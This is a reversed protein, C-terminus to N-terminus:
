RRLHWRKMSEENFHRRQDRYRRFSSGPTRIWLPAGVVIRDVEEDLHWREKDLVVDSYVEALWEADEADAFTFGRRWPEDPREDHSANTGQHDAIKLAELSLYEPDDEPRREECRTSLWERVSWMSSSTWGSPQQDNVGSWGPLNDVSGFLAFGVHTGDSSVTHTNVVIRGGTRCIFHSFELRSVGMAFRAPPPNVFDEVAHEGIANELRTAVADRSLTRATPELDIGIGLVPVKAV